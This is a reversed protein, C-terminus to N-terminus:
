DAITARLMWVAKEHFALRNAMLDHTVFDNRDEAETAGERILRAISQHDEILEEIMAKATTRDGLSLARDLGAAAKGTPVAHGLARIREAILDIAAFLETYHQETLTHIPQFLPGVVNWHVVQSRLLTRYTQVTVESLMEAIAKRDIDSIGVDIGKSIPRVNSVASAQSM